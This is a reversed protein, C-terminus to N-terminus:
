DDLDFTIDAEDDSLFTVTVEGRAGRFEGSGGTVPGTQSGSFAGNQVTLLAQTAIQGGEFSFTVACQETDTGSKEQRVSTCVGGDSGVNTGGKETFLDDSFVFQDGLSPGSDGLDIAAFQVTKSFVTFTRGHTDGGSSATASAIGAGAAAVALAAVASVAFRSRM